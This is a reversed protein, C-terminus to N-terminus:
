YRGKEKGLNLFAWVKFRVAVWICYTREVSIFVLKPKYIFRDHSTRKRTTNLIRLAVFNEHRHSFFLIHGFSINNPSQCSHSSHEFPSLQNFFSKRSSTIREPLFSFAKLKSELRYFSMFYIFSPNSIICSPYNASNSIVVSQM